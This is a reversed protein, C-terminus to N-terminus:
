QLKFLGRQRKSEELLRLGGGAESHSLPGTSATHTLVIFTRAGVPPAGMFGVGYYTSIYELFSSVQPVTIPGQHERQQVYVIECFMLM